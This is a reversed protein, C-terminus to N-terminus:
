DAHQLERVFEHSPMFDLIDKRGTSAIALRELDIGYGDSPRPIVEGRVYQPVTEAEPGYHSQSRARELYSDPDSEDEIVQAVEIGDIQFDSIRAIAEANPTQRGVSEAARPADSAVVLQGQALTDVEKTMYTKVLSYITAGPQQSLTIKLKAESDPANVLEVMINSQIYKGVSCTAIPADYFLRILNQCLQIAEELTERAEYLGLMPVQQLHEHDVTDRRACGPIEFVESARVFCCPLSLGAPENLLGEDDLRTRQFIPSTHHEHILASRLEVFGRSWLTTRLRLLTKALYLLPSEPNM